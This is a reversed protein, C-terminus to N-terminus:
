KHLFNNVAEAFALPQEAHLWHGANAIKIIEVNTFRQHIEEEDAPLIYNSRTGAIFLTPVQIPPGAPLAAGIEHINEVIAELNLRWSFRGEADRYLNKLLFQRVDPAEVYRSMARDAEQRSQITHLDVARFGEIISQHHPKYARPAIDVVILKELQDPYLQAFRMAVKGGMSHGMLTFPIINEARAFEAVDQAMVEYNFESSWASQGHNRQDILYVTHADAFAKSVTLWNDGSGFVGHLIVLPKGEGIKRYHLQM